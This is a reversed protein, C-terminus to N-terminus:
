QSGLILTALSWSSFDKFGHALNLDEDKNQDPGPGLSSFIILLYCM